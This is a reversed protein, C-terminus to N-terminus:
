VKKSAHVLQVLADNRSQGCYQANHVQKWNKVALSPGSMKEIGGVEALKITIVNKPTNFYSKLNGFLIKKNALLPQKCEKYKRSHVNSKGTARWTLFLVPPMCM